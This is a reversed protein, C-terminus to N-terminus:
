LSLLWPVDQSFNNDNSLLRVYMNCPQTSIGPLLFIISSIVPFLISNCLCIAQFGHLFTCEANSYKEWAPAPWINRLITCIPVHLFHLLLASRLLFTRSYCTTNGYREPITRTWSMDNRLSMLSPLICVAQRQYHLYCLLPRSCVNCLRPPALLKFFKSFINSFWRIQFWWTINGACAAIILNGSQPVLLTMQSQM